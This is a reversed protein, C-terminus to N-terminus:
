LAPGPPTSYVAGKSTLILIDTSGDGDLDGSLVTRTQFELPIKVLSQPSLLAVYGPCAIASTIESIRAPIAPSACTDFTRVQPDGLTLGIVASGDSIIFGDDATSGAPYAWRPSFSVEGLDKTVSIGGRSFEVFFAADRSFGVLRLAGDIRTIAWAPSAQTTRSVTGDGFLVLAHGDSTGLVAEAVGDGSMDGAGIWAEAAELVVRERCGTDTIHSLVRLKGNESVVLSDRLPDNLTAAGLIRADAPAKWFPHSEGAAKDGNTLFVADKCLVAVEARRDGNADLVAASDPVCPLAYDSWSVEHAAPVIPQQIPPPADDVMRGGYSCCALSLSMLVVHFARM